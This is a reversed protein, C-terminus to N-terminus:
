TNIMSSPIPSNAHINSAVRLYVVPSWVCITYCQANMNERLCCTCENSQPFVGSVTSASEIVQPRDRQCLCRTQESWGLLLFFPPSPPRHDVSTRVSVRKWLMKVYRNQDFYIYWSDETVDNKSCSAYRVRDPFTRKKKKKRQVCRDQGTKIASILDPSFKSRKSKSSSRAFSSLSSSSSSWFCGWLLHTLKM